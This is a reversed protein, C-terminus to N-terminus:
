AHLCCGTIAERPSLKVLTSLSPQEFPM